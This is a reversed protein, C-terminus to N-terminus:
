RWQKKRGLWDDVIAQVDKSMKENGALEGYIKRDDPVPQRERPLDIEYLSALKMGDPCVRPLTGCFSPSWGWDTLMQLAENRNSDLVQFRFRARDDLPLPSTVWVGPMKAMERALATAKQQRENLLMETRAGDM